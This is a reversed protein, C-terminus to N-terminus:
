LRGGGNFQGPWLEKSNATQASPIPTSVAVHSQHPQKRTSSVLQELNIYQRAETEQIATGTGSNTFNVLQALARGPNDHNPSSPSITFLINDKSCGAGESRVYCIVPLQEQRGSTLWLNSLKGNGYKTAAINLRRTVEQCRTSPTYGSANFDTREWEIMPDTPGDSTMAITAYGKTGSQTCQFTTDTSIPPSIPAQPTSLSASEVPIEAQIEVPPAGPGSVLTPQSEVPTAEAPPTAIQPPQSSANTSSTSPLAQGLQRARLHIIQALRQQTEMGISDNQTAFSQYNERVYQLETLLEQPSSYRMIRSEIPNTMRPQQAPPQTESPILTLVNVTESPRPSWALNNIGQDNTQQANSGITNWNTSTPANGTNAVAPMMTSGIILLTSLATSFKKM